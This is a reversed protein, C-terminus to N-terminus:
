GRMRRMSRCVGAAGPRQRLHGPRGVPVTRPPGAPGRARGAPPRRLDGQLRRGQPRYLGALVECVLSGLNRRTRGARRRAGRPQQQGSPRRVHRRLRARRDRGPIQRRLEPLDPLEPQGPARGIAAPDRHRGQPDRAARSGLPLHGAAAPLRGRPRSARHSRGPVRQPRQPDARALAPVPDRGPQVVGAGWGPQVLYATVPRQGAVPIVVTQVSVSGPGTAAAAQGPAAALTVLTGAAAVAVALRAVRVKFTM